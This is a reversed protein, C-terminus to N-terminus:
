KVTLNMCNRICSIWNKQFQMTMYAKKKTDRRSSVALINSIPKSTEDITTCNADKSVCVNNNVIIKRYPSRFERSSPNDNYGYMTRNRGFFMELFDQSLYYTSINSLVKEGDVFNNYMSVISKMDILFGLFGTCSRSSLIPIRKLESNVTEEIELCRIYKEAFKFFGFIEDKNDESLIRKFSNEDTHSISNFVDFLKNGVRLFKITADANEFEAHWEDKLFSLSKATSESITQVALNVKMINKEWQLHKQNLKHTLGYGKEKKFRVLEEIYRWEIIGNDIDILKKRGFVNRWLKIMHCADLMIHISRQDSAVFHPQFEATFPDLNAGLQKCMTINAQFGDFTINSIRIGIGILSEIVQNLLSMKDSANLCNIFHYAIPIQFNEEILSVMFVIVQKAFKQTGNKDSGYTIYGHMTKSSDCYEVQKRISMEDFSLSCVLESNKAKKEDVKKKLIELCADHIGPKCNMDSKCVLKSHYM